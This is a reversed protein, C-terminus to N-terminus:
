ILMRLLITMLILLTNTNLFQIVKIDSIKVYEGDFTNAKQVDDDDDQQWYVILESFFMGLFNIFTVRYDEISDNGDNDKNSSKPDDYIHFRASSRMNHLTAVTQVDVEIKAQNINIIINPNIFNIIFNSVTKKGRRRDRSMRAKQPSNNNAKDPSGVPALVKDHNTTTDTFKKNSQLKDGASTLFSDALLHIANIFTQDACLDENSLSDIDGNKKKLIDM